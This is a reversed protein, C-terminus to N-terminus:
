YEFNKVYPLPFHKWAIVEGTFKTNGPYLWIKNLHDYKLIIVEAKGDPYKKVTAIVSDLITYDDPVEESPLKWMDHVFTPLIDNIALAVKGVETNNNYNYYQNRYNNLVKLSEKLEM